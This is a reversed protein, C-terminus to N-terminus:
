PTGASELMRAVQQNVANDEAVLVRLGPARARRPTAPESPGRQEAGGARRLGSRAVVTDLLDSQKVPKTLYASIGLEFCRADGPQGVSSLMM